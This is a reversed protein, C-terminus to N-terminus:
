LLAREGTNPPLYSGMHSTETPKSYAEM